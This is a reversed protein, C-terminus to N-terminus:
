PERVKAHSGTDASPKPNTLHNFLKKLMVDANFNNSSANSNNDNDSPPNDDDDPPGDAPPSGQYEPETNLTVIDDPQESFCRQESIEQLQSGSPGSNVPPRAARTSSRTTMTTM